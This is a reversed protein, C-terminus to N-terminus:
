NEAFVFATNSDEIIYGCDEPTSSPYITTTAGGACLIGTDACIWEYRTGCLIAVREENQLGLARLGMSVERVTVGFDKWSVSKWSSGSPFSYATGGPTATVRFHVMEPITRFTQGAM